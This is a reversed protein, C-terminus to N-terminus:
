EIKPLVYQVEAIETLDALKEISISGSLLKPNKGEVRAFGLNKLKVSTEASFSNLVIQVRANNETVFKADTETLKSEGKQRREVLAYLWSHLKEALALKRKEEPSLAKVSMKGIQTSTESNEGAFNYFIVGSIKVVKGSILTPAFKASKAAAEASQRLLPHGSVAQASIVDGNEDILVQVSVTGFAKVARAAAPFDPKPLNTARGNIVGGSVPKAATNNSNVADTRFNVTEQGDVVFTNESGSTGNIQYGASGNGSGSGQGTGRGSGSGSGSAKKNKTSRLKSSSVDVTAGPTLVMLNGVSRGNVPLSNVSQSTVNVQTQSSSVTVVEDDEGLTSKRNVGQPLEVPVDVRTPKGNQNVVREEVAVFSTFQTLLRYELGINTITQQVEALANGEAAGKYDKKTLDDIRTRAWLTALVGNKSESEPLVVPIERVYDQGGVKGRLKITGGAGKTYRGHLIVPKASFLDAIRKPYIDAVPLNNWDVSVDTLLPTRVREHFKRAARSGDDDFTVYEVEGRGEEAMKDLLFRNVSSGIGFSFVRANKHKQIEAIIEGENGVYGDTMFCVIRLHTQSDSPELATKIAKMMETGGGGERTALFAQARDLNARTAPVPEDFLVATDGAFTILNFTDNPYLGDLSLKMAEKAKEIPFGNMSGSTDLVFVIEKPTVDEAAFKDPPQLILSFFGGRADRHTLVADEIRKGTVDYRLIFDKNPITKENKLVIKVANAGARTETIEHSRSRIEEIPIGADLNIELSVDHGARTKAVPPSIRAADKVSAPNYRPGVTMPFVFEYAGDEYKLTEVYSIEVTIKEGPLINAVSQTFVNPREQDLLSATKGESKATEYTQRAEERKLIKARIRRAGVLMTMDDVAGTQSLPFVYVAEIPEAFNNEFEQVVKVRALFGSIDTVVKTNKLPCAGLEAGKKGVAYLTGESANQALASLSCVFIILLLSIRRM